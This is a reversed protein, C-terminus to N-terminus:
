VVGLVPDPVEGGGVVVAGSTVVVLRSGVLGGGVLWEQVLTLAHHACDHAAQAADARGTAPPRVAVIVQEPVAMGEAVRRRLDALDAFRPIAIDDAFDEPPDGLFACADPLIRLAAEVPQRSWSPVLMLSEGRVAALQDTDVPRLTLSGVSLLPAGREDTVLVRVSGDAAPSLRARATSGMVGHTRVEEWAFPLLTQGDADLVLMHLASDLTAPHIGFQGSSPQQAELAVEAFVDSGVRWAARLGRFNPGYQYGREALREYAEDMDIAEASQPPWVTMPEPVAGDDAALTGSAHLTWKRDVEPGNPRSHISIPRRGSDDADGVQVQLHADGDAALVLPAQIALDALMGCGTREGARLALEVLAAGPVLVTGGIVHDALWSHTRTSVRGTFLTSTGDAMEVAAGLLSHSVPELGLGAADSPAPPPALWYRQRQFAYTPLEVLRAGPFAASWDTTASAALATYLTTTESRGRRMLPHIAEEDVDDGLCERAMTALVADPGLELYADTGHRELTRIADYFRVPCRIHDAWYDASCLQADTALEGTADSVVPIRPRTYTVQAAVRRFEEAAEEMLPSHFAHSTRLRNTRRGRARWREALEQAAAEEGSVVTARPGNIAAIALRGELGALSERVEAESAQVSVMAGGTPAAQMIRGRAAVLACADSLDLVGAVHAAALGGISHGLVYHPRLRFEELLRFLAVEIAFLVPQTYRTQTLLEPDDGRLLEHLPRDLHGDFHACVDGLAAAYAPFSMALEAGAGIRQSGQGSFLFAVKGPTRARHLLVDEHDQGSVLAALGRLLGSTEGAVVLARDDFATRTVALSRGVDDPRLDPRDRLLTLLSAAQARLAQKGQGTLLWPLRHRLVEPQQSGDAPAATGPEPEPEPEPQELIVHANTGSIGFSSIGARRPRGPRPWPRSRDLLRVAGDSWDVEPTPENGHLSTPLEGERMAMVMKIVGAVGAAAQTHGINSKVSGLWLPAEAARDRGYVAQLARAEIPDGLRTGTGHAEVADVEDPRLGAAALAQQLVRVQSPGNPATLGNSAGDQNVASGRLVALVPHGNRRADSLRELLLLGAGEAFGTGDAGASFPKCRGDPALGRQRSFEIFTAPTAMVTVGGALAMTCEDALLARRALHLAVLSSSCATDVSVAPGQLGFTYAIRGSAVSGYSGNRLYGELEAPVTQLRAGYDGYMVGAFVGTQSGNMTRPDIGAREFAEWAVELLLRQQPDTALAERPSIGFFQADFDGADNLFGGAKSYVKGAAQPDPDYLEEIDWGRDAPFPGIVDRGERVLRWLDEPTRVDGPYRCGMAVIAIPEDASAAPRTTVSASRPATGRMQDRLHDVLADPTPHDFVLTSPLQLGTVAKLQNRFEVAVLSDFGLDKFPRCGSVREGEDFNLVAAIRADVMERLARDFEEGVLGSLQQAWTQRGTVTTAAATRRVPSPVLDHFIAPLTGSAAHRRLAGLDLRAPVLVPQETTLAADFLALGEETPM